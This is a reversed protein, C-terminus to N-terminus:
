WNMGRRKGVLVRQGFRLIAFELNTGQRGISIYWLQTSGEGSIFIDFVELLGVDQEGIRPDHHADVPSSEM